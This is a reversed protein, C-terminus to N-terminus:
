LPLRPVRGLLEVFHPNHLAAPARRERMLEVIKIPPLKTLMKLSISAVLASRNLGAKCTVLVRRGERLARAVAKGGEIALQAEGSTLHSDPLPVRIVQRGFSLRAPQLERACLVLTDFEPLDRDFPPQGGVWLRRVINSADLTQEQSAALSRRRKEASIWGGRKGPPAQLHTGCFVAGVERTSKCEPAICRTM